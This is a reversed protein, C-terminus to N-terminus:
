EPVCAPPGASPRLPSHVGGCCLISSRRIRHQPDTAGRSSLLRMLVVVTILLAHRHTTIVSSSRAQARPRDLWGGRWSISEGRRRRAATRPGSAPTAAPSLRGRAHREARGHARGSLTARDSQELASAAGQNMRKAVIENAASEV